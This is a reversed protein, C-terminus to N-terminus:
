KRMLWAVRQSQKDVHSAKTLLMKTPDLLPAKPDNGVETQSLAKLFIPPFSGCLFTIFQQMICILTAVNVVVMCTFVILDIAEQGVEEITATMRILTNSIDSSCTMDAGSFLGDHGLGLISYCEWKGGFDSIENWKFERAM